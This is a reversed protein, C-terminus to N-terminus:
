NLGMFVRDLNKSDVSAGAQLLLGVIATYGQISARHLPMIGDQVNADFLCHM